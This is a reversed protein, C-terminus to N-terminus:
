KKLFCINKKLSDLAYTIACWGIRYRLMNQVIKKQKKRIHFPKTIQMLIPIMLTQMRVVETYSNYWYLVNNLFKFFRITQNKLNPQTTVKRLSIWACLNREYCSRMFVCIDVCMEEIVNHSFQLYNQLKKLRDSGAGVLLLLYYNTAIDRTLKQYVHCRNLEDSHKCWM